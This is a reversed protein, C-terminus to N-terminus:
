KAPSFRVAVGGGPALKLKLVTSANVRRQEIATHKPHVDRTQADSYIEASYEGLGLFGAFSEGRALGRQHDRGRVM